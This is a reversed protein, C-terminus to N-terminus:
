PPMWRCDNLNRYRMFWFLLAEASSKKCKGGRQKLPLIITTPRAVADFRVARLMRLM